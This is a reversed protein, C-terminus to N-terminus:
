KRESWQMNNQFKHRVGGSKAELLLLLLLLLRARLLVRPTNQYWVNVSLENDLVVSLGSVPSVYCLLSAESALFYLVWVYSLSM